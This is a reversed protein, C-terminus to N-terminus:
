KQRQAPKHIIKLVICAVIALVGLVTMVVGATWIPGKALRLAVSIVSDSKSGFLAALVTGMLLYGIGVVTAPVGIYLLLGFLYERNIFLLLLLLLVTVIWLIACFASSLLFRVASVTSASVHLLKEPSVSEGMSKELTAAMKDYDMVVKDRIGLKEIARRIDEDHDELISVILAPTIGETHKGEFLYERLVQMVDNLIDKVVQKDLLKEVDRQTVNQFDPITKCQSYVFDTLPVTEGSKTPIEIESLEIDEVWAETNGEGLSAHLLSLNVSLSLFIALLICLLVSLGNHRAGEGYFAFSLGRKGSQAPASPRGSAYSRGKKKGDPFMLSVQAGCKGCFRDGDQIPYGCNKCYM